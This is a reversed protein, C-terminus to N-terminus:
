KLAQKAKRERAKEILDRLFATWLNPDPHPEVILKVKIPREDNSREEQGRNRKAMM